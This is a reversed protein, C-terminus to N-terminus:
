SFCVCACARVQALLSRSHFGRMVGSGKSVPKAKRVRAYSLVFQVVQESSLIENISHSSASHCSFVLAQNLPTPVSIALGIGMGEQLGVFSIALFTCWIIAYEAISVKHFSHVLWDLLLDIAIFVLM